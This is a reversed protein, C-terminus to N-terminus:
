ATAMVRTTATSPQGVSAAATISVTVALGRRRALAKRLVRVQKRSLTVRVVKTQGGPISTSPAKVDVSVAKKGKKPRARPTISATVTLACTTDCGVRLPLGGSGALINKSRLVRTSVQPGDPLPLTPVKPAPPTGVPALQACSAATPNALQFQQVRNNDSDTVTLVGRCDVAVGTPHVFQGLGAGRAGLTLLREGAPGFQQVRNNGRDAVWLNGAPDLAIQGPVNLKGLNSGTGGFQDVQAGDAGFVTIRNRSDAVYTRLGDPTVAIGRPEDDTASSGLSDGATNFRAIRVNGSDAVSITGNADIALAPPELLQGPGSAPTGM